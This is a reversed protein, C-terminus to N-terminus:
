ILLTGHATCATTSPLDQSTM